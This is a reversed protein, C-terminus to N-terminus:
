KQSSGLPHSKWYSTIKKKLGISVYKVTCYLGRQNREEVSVLQNMMLMDRSSLCYILFEVFCEQLAKVVCHASTARLLPVGAVPDQVM